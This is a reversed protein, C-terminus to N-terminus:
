PRARWSPSIRLPEEKGAIAFYSFPMQRLGRHKIELMDFPELMKRLAHETFRWYDHPEDHYPFFVPVVFVATGGPRLARYVREVAGRFDYVHELVNLCLIVDFQEHFGMTAVDVIQHGHEPVVDSQIFENSRDFFRRVSYADPGLDQRGSGLELIRQGHIGRAFREVNRNMWRRSGLVVHALARLLRQM